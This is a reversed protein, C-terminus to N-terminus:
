IRKMIIITWLSPLNIEIVQRVVHIELRESKCSEIHGIKFIFVKKLRVHWDSKAKRNDIADFDITSLIFPLSESSYQILLSKWRDSSHTVHLMFISSTNKFSHSFSLLFFRCSMLNSHIVWFFSYISFISFLQSNDYQSHLKRHSWLVSFLFPANHPPRFRKKFSIIFEFYWNQTNQLLWQFIHICNIWVFLFHASLMCGNFMSM